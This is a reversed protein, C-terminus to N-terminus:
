LKSKKILAETWLRAIERLEDETFAKVSVAVYVGDEGKLRLYNPVMPMEIKEIKM